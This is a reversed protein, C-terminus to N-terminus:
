VGTIIETQCDLLQLDPRSEEVFAAVRAVAEGAHDADGSICCVVLTLRRWVQDDPSEAVAVNFQQHIRATLSRAVQRRDKLSNSDPLLLDLRGVAIHV